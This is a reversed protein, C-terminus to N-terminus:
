FSQLQAETPEACCYWPESMHPIAQGLDTDVLSPATKGAAEHAIHWIHEFILRRPTNAKEAQAVYAQIGRQLVDVRSDPNQWPYGLLKKDFKGILGLKERVLAALELGHDDVALVADPEISLHELITEAAQVPQDFHVASLADMGWAPALQPCYDAVPIVAVGLKKAAALFDDNRYSAVPLLLLISKMKHSVM